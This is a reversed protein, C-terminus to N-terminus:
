AWKLPCNEKTLGLGLNWVHQRLDEIALPEYNLVECSVNIYRMDRQPVAGDFMVFNTHTHGHVNVKWARDNLASPHVPVHTFAAGHMVRVAHLKEIGAKYYLRNDFIDHNGMILRKKGNLRLATDFGRKYNIFMDGLVYVTDCDRVVANWKEVIHEHMDDLTAFDRVPKGDDQVFTLMKEHGLHLDSIFFSNKSM